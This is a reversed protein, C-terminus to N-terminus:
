DYTATVELSEWWVSVKQRKGKRKVYILNYDWCEKPINSVNRWTLTYLDIGNKKLQPLTNWKSLYSGWKQVDSILISLTKARAFLSCCVVEPVDKCSEHKWLFLFLKIRTRIFITCSILIPNGTHKKFFLNPHPTRVAPPSPLLPHKPKTQPNKCYRVCFDM